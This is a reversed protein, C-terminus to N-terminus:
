NAAGRESIMPLFISKLVSLLFVLLLNKMMSM